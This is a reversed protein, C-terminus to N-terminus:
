VCTGGLLVRSRGLTWSLLDGREKKETGVVAPVNVAVRWPRGRLGDMFSQNNISIM